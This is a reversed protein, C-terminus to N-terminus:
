KLETSQIKGKFGKSAPSPIKWPLLWQFLLMPPKFDANLHVGLRHLLCTMIATEANGFCCDFVGCTMHDKRPKPTPHTQSFTPPNEDRRITLAYNKIRRDQSQGYIEDDSSSIMLSIMPPLWNTKVIVSVAPNSITSRYMCPTLFLFFIGCEITM